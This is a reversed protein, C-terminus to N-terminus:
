NRKWTEFVHDLAPKSGAVRRAKTQHYDAWPLDVMTTDGAFSGALRTVYLTDPDDKFTAFVKAGGTIILDQAPHAAAYVLVDERSHLVVAGPAQYQQDRTLVLNTRHPLPKKRLGDYTNRGMLMLQGTTVQKFWALDDPLRWPLVNDKGIVGNKDQAWLFAIM